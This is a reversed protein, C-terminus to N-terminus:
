FAGQLRANVPHERLVIVFKVGPFRRDETAEGVVRCRNRFSLLRLMGPSAQAISCRAGVAVSLDDLADLLRWALNLHPVHPSVVIREPLAIPGDLDLGLRAYQESDPLQDLSAHLSWRAAALLEGGSVIALHTCDDDLPDRWCGNPFLHVALRGTEGWVRVRFRCIEDIVAPDTVQFPHLTSENGM